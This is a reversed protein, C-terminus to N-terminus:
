YALDIKVMRAAGTLDAGHSISAEPFVQKAYTTVADLQEAGAIELFLKAEPEVFNPSEILLRKILYLGDSGGDLANRPENRIETQMEDLNSTKIYPLNSIIIDVSSTLPRLLDGQILCIKNAIKHIRSNKKAVQLAQHDNDTAYVTANNSNTAIAIAIAGSGTGVDAVKFTDTPRSNLVELVSDVLLETEQRPILVFPNVIFELGYFQRHGTIYALPEGQIRRKILRELTDTHIPNFPLKLSAFYQTRNMGSAHRILVEAEIGPELM